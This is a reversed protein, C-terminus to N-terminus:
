YWRAKRAMTSSPEWRCSRWRWGLPCDSGLTGWKRGAKAVSPRDFCIAQSWVGWANQLAGAVVM